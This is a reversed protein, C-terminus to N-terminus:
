APLITESSRPIVCTTRVRLPCVGKNCSDTASDDLGLTSKKLDIMAGNARLFDQGQVAEYTLDRVINFECFYNGGAIGLSVKVMELIPLAEGSVTPLKM